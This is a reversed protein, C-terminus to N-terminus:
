GDRLQEMSLNYEQRGILKDLHSSLEQARLQLSSRISNGRTILPVSCYDISKHPAFGNCAVVEPCSGEVITLYELQILNHWRGKACM